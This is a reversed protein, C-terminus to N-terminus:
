IYNAVIFHQMHSNGDAFRASEYVVRHFSTMRYVAEGAAAIM